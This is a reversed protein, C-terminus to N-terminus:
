HEHRQLQPLIDSGDGAADEDLRKSPMFFTALAAVVLAIVSSVGAIVPFGFFFDWGVLLGNVAGFLVWGVLPSLFSTLLFLAKGYSRDLRRATAITGAIVMGTTLLGLVTGWKVAAAFTAWTFEGAFTLYYVALLGTALAIGIMACCAIVKWYLRMTSQKM